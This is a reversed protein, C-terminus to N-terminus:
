RPPSPPQLGAADSPIATDAAVVEIGGPLAATDDEQVSNPDAPNSIVRGVPVPLPRPRHWVLAQAMAAALDNFRLSTVSFRRPGDVIELDSSGGQLQRLGAAIVMFAAPGVTVVSIVLAVAWPLPAWVLVIMGTVALVAALTTEGLLKAIVRADFSL